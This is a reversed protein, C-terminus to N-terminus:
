PTPRTRTLASSLFMGHIRIGKKHLLRICVEIDDLSQKKNYAKLTAPNISEFRYVTHCKSRQM